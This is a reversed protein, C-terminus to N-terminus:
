SSRTESKLTWRSEQKEFTRQLLLAGPFNTNQALNSCYRSLDRLSRTRWLTSLYAKAALSSLSSLTPMQRRLSHYNDAISYLFCYNLNVKDLHIGTKISATHSTAFSASKDSALNEIERRDSADFCVLLHQIANGYSPKKQYPKSRSWKEIPKYVKHMTDEDKTDKKMACRPGTCQWVECEMGNWNKGIGIKEYLIWIPSTEIRRAMKTRIVGTSDRKRRSSMPPPPSSKAPETPPPMGLESQSQSVNDSRAPTASPTPATSRAPTKPRSSTPAPTTPCAPTKGKRPSRRTIIDLPTQFLVNRLPSKALQPTSPHLQLSPGPTDLIGRTNQDSIQPTAPVLVKESVAVQSPSGSVSLRSRLRDPYGCIRSVPALPTKKSPSAAIAGKATTEETNQSATGISSARRHLTPRFRALAKPTDISESRTRSQPAPTPPILSLDALTDSLLDDIARSKEMPASALQEPATQKVKAANGKKRGKRQVKKSSQLELVQEDNAAEFGRANCRRSPHEETPAAARNSRRPRGSM